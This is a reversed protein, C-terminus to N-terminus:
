WEVGGRVLVLGRRLSLVCVVICVEAFSMALHLEPGHLETHLSERGVDFCVQM